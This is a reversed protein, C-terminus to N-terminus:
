ETGMGSNTDYGQVQKADTGIEKRMRSNEGTSERLKRELISIRRLDGEWILNLGELRSTLSAVEVKLRAIKDEWEAVMAGVALHRKERM